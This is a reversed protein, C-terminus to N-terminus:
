ANIEATTRPSYGVLRDLKMRRSHFHQDQTSQGVSNRTFSRQVVNVFKASLKVVAVVETV